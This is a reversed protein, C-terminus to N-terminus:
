PASRLRIDLKSLRGEALNVVREESAYGEKSVRIRKAGAPLYRITLPALGRGIGNVTVRAGEPQTTVVLETISDASVRTAAQETTVALVGNSAPSPRAQTAEIAVALVDVSPALTPAVPDLQILRSAEVVADAPTERVPPVSRQPSDIVSRVHADSQLGPERGGRARGLVAAAVVVVIVILVRQRSFVPKQSRPPEPAPEARDLETPALSQDLNLVRPDLNLARAYVRIKARRYFGPPVVAFDDHELAELHRRSIRTESAIQELTLGRGKRARRLLEGVEPGDNPPPRGVMDNM